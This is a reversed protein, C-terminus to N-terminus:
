PAEVPPMDRDVLAGNLLDLDYLGDLNVADLLGVARAHEASALLTSALPDATFEINEWARDLISDDIPSAGIASLHRNVAAKASAPDKEILQNAGLQADIVARVITPYQDLFTTASVMNAVVFRGDPWLSAENVLVRGNTAMRTLWPEPVWAGDIEGAQFAQLATANDM